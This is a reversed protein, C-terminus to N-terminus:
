RSSRRERPTARRNMAGPARGARPLDEIPNDRHPPGRGSGRKRTSPTSGQTSTSSRRRSRRRPRWQGPTTASSTSHRRQRARRGPDHHPPRLGRIRRRCGASADAAQAPRGARTDRRRGPAPPTCAAQGASATRAPWSRTFEDVDQDTIAGDTACMAPYRTARWSSDSVAPSCCRPSGQPPSYAWTGPAAMPSTPPGESALAPCAPRSRPSTMPGAGSPDRGPPPLWRSRQHRQGTLHVAGLDLENILRECPRRRAPM